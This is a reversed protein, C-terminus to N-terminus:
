ARSILEKGSSEEGSTSIVHLYFSPTTSTRKGPLRVNSYEESASLLRGPTTLQATPVRTVPTLFLTISLSTPSLPSPATASLARATIFTWALTM